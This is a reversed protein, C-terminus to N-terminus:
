PTFIRSLLQGTRSAFFLAWIRSTGALVPRNAVRSEGYILDHHEQCARLSLHLGLFYILTDLLQQPNSSGFSGNEWLMKEEEFTISRARRKPKVNGKQASRKMMADLVQRANEFEPDLFVSWNKGLTNRFYHQISSVIGKQTEPPYLEGNCKRMESIFYQLCVNLDFKTFEEPDKLIKAPGDLRTRWECRWTNFMKWIWLTKKYTCTNEPIRSKKFKELEEDTIHVFADQHSAM